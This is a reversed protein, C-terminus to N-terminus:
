NSSRIRRALLAPSMQRTISEVSGDAFLFNTVTEHWSGFVPEAPSDVSAAIPYKEGAFRVHGALSGGDVIPTDLAEAEGLHGRPVHKEGFLITTSLGRKLQATTLPHRWAILATGNKKTGVAPIIGGTPEGDPWTAAYDGVAGRRPEDGALAETRVHAPCVYFLAAAHRVEPAQDAFPKALDWGELPHNAQAFPALLVAWTAYGDDLRSPPLYANGEADKHADGYRQMAVGVVRLQNMCVVRSARDRSRGLFMFVLGLGIFAVVLLIVLETLTFGGRVTASSKFASRDTILIM